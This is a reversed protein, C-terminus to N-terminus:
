LGYWTYTSPVHGYQIDQRKLIDFFVMIQHIYNIPQTGRAYGYKAKKYYKRFRLMPLTKVLASWRNPDLGLGRALNRADEIHGIGINYAALSINRRDTGWAKDFHDFLSKLHAVGATINQNPNYVDTVGLSEATEMTLQMLGYANAYSQAYPDFHSEQYIQAAILRWDFGYRASVDKIISEYKPLRTRLRRHFTNLDVYDYWELNSFYRNYIEEFRGNEKIIKFFTNVRNLLDAADNRVAWGLQQKESIALVPVAKPYYRRNLKAIHTDAVTLDIEGDAVMRILEETPMDDHLRVVIPIGTATIAELQDQYSTGQRVDITRGALDSTSNITWEGRHAIVHQRITLYGASFAVQEQRRPTITMSAAVVDGSGGLLGPIMGDWQDAIRVVLRVGLYDAFAKALDYEFGMPQGRYLYYCHANNRTIVTVKGSKLIRELVTPPPPPPRESIVFVYCIGFFSTVIVIGSVWQWVLTTWRHTYPAAPEPM